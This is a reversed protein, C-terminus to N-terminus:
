ETVYDEGVRTILILAALAVVAEAVYLASISAASDFMALAFYLALVFIGVASNCLSQVKGQIEIPTAQQARTVIVAWVSLAFGVLFLSLKALLMHDNTSLFIFVACLLVLQASISFKQSFRTAIYPTLIGGAVAGLSFLAELHSFDSVSAGLIQRAYPVLIVPATFLIIMVLAQAGYYQMLVSNRKLYTLTSRMNGSTAQSAEDAKTTRILALLAAAAMFFVGGTFLSLPEGLLLVAFGAAGMGFISGFEYITDVTANAFLLDDPPVIKRVLVMSAPGYFSNFFGLCLGVTLPAVLSDQSWYLPCLVLCIGRALNSGMTLMRQSTSDTIRGILPALVISPGWLCLLLLAVAGISEKANQVSWVLAIYNLGNGFTAFFGSLAFFLFDFNKFLDIRRRFYGMM